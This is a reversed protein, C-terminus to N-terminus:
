TCLHSVCRIRNLHILSKMGPVHWLCRGLYWAFVNIFHVFSNFSSIAAFKFLSLTHCSECKQSGIVVHVRDHFLRSSWPRCPRFALAVVRSVTQCSYTKNVYMTLAHGFQLINFRTMSFGLLFPGFRLMVIWSEIEIVLSLFCIICVTNFYDNVLSWECTTWARHVLRM